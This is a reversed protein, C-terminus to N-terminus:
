QAAVSLRSGRSRVDPVRDGMELRAVRERKVNGLRGDVRNATAERVLLPFDITM